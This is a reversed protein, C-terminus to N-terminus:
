EGTPLWQGYDDGVAICDDFRKGNHWIYDAQKMNYKSPDDYEYHEAYGISRSLWSYTALKKNQKIYNCIYGCGYIGVKYELYKEKYEAKLEELQEKIGLFYNEIEARGNNVGINTDVAFYIATNEPQGLDKALHYADYANEKGKDFSFDVMQNKSDPDIQSAAYCKGRDQYISIISINAKKLAKIEAETLIKWTYNFKEGKRPTRAYYRAVFEEGGLKYARVNEDENENDCMRGAVDAGNHINDPKTEFKWIQSNSNKKSEWVVNKGSCALYQEESALKIKYLKNAVDHPVIELRSDNESAECSIYVKRAEDQCLFFDTGLDDTLQSKLKVNAGNGRITWKQRNWFSKAEAFVQWKKRYITIKYKEGNEDIKTEYKQMELINEDGVRLANGNGAEALIFYEVKEAERQEMDVAILNWYQQDSGSVTEWTVSKGNDSATLYKASNVSKVRYAGNGQLIFRFACVATNKAIMEVTDGNSLGYDEDICSSVYCDNQDSILNIKWIQENSDDSTNLCVCKKKEDENGTENENSSNENGLNLLYKGNVSLAKMGDNYVHTSVLKFYQGVTVECSGFVRSGDCAIASITATGTRIATVYGTNINVNAINEDSSVWRVCNNAANEPCVIASLFCSDGIVLTKKAPYVTVSTVLIDDTVTVVYSGKKGSEDCATAVITATGTANAFVQGSIPNVSAIDSNSSSWTVSKCTANAPSIEVTASNYWKGTQLRISNPAIKISNVCIM